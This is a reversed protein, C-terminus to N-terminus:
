KHSLIVSVEGLLEELACDLEACDISRNKSERRRVVINLSEVINLM